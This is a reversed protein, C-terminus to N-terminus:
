KLVFIKHQKGRNLFFFFLADAAARAHLVAERLNQRQVRTKGPEHRAPLSAAEPALVAQGDARGPREAPVPLFGSLRKQGAFRGVRLLDQVKQALASADALVLAFVDRILDQLGQAAGHIEDRGPAIVVPKKERAGLVHADGVRETLVGSFGHQFPDAARRQGCFDGM